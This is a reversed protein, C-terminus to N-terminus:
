ECPQSFCISYKFDKKKKKFTNNYNLLKLEVIHNQHGCAKHFRVAASLIYTHTLELLMM